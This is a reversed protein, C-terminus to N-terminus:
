PNAYRSIEGRESFQVAPLAGCESACKYFLRLGERCPQDLSYHINVTLYSAVDAVSMSLRPAWENAITRLSAPTFGHDRSRQFIDALNLVSGAAAGSGTPAGPLAKERVAWFAFVFPKGTHKRWEEALDIVTTYRTRQILL